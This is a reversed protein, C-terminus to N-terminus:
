DSNGKVAQVIAEVEQFDESGFPIESGFNYFLKFEGTGKDPFFRALPFDAKVQDSDLLQGDIIVPGPRSQPEADQLKTFEIKQFRVQFDVKAGNIERQGNQIWESSYTIATEGIEILDGLELQAATLTITDGEVYTGRRARINDSTEQSSKDIIQLIDTILQQTRESAKESAKEDDFTKRADVYANELSGFLYNEPNEPM